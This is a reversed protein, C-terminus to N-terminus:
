PELVAAELQLALHLHGRRPQYDVNRAVYSQITLGTEVATRLRSNGDRLRGELDFIIPCNPDGDPLFPCTALVRSGVSKVRLPCRRASILVDVVGGFLGTPAISRWM